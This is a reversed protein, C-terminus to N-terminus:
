RSNIFNELEEDTDAKKAVPKPAPLMKDLQAIVRGYTTLVSEYSTMYVSQKTGSQKEGHQYTEVVDPNELMIKRLDDLKYSLFAANEILKQALVCKNKPLDAYIKKLRRIEKDIIKQTVIKESKNSTKKKKTVKKLM